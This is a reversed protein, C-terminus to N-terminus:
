IIFALDKRMAWGENHNSQSKKKEMTFIEYVTRPLMCMLFASIYIVSAFLHKPKCGEFPARANLRFQM